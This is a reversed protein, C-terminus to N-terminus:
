NSRARVKQNGEARWKLYEEVAYRTIFGPESLMKQIMETQPAAEAELHIDYYGGAKIFVSRQSGEKRPPSLFSVRAKEGTRPMALYRGDELLLLDRVDRGLADQAELPAVENVILPQDESYDVALWNIMWYTAAPTLKVRLTDGPVDSVDFSYLRDESILPGGGQILGRSAWGRPTEVRIHLQYLEERVDMLMTKMLSPGQSNVDRYWEQVTNGYLDLLKKIMHSGWLTTCGNFILRATKAGEPKPFEFVLEEKTPSTTDRSMEATRTLWFKWDNTGVAPLLDRGNRDFARRPSLPNSVTHMKGLADSVVRAEPAHDVVVLKLEDTYQTEDVENTILINYRGDAEKIEELACWETRKLGECIAGGFPEADFVYREGNFSYIFPCSEKLAAIIVVIAGLTVGIGGLTALFTLGPDIKKVWVLEVDKLPVSVEVFDLTIVIEEKDEKVIKPYTYTKGDKTEIALIRGDSTKNIKQIQARPIAIEGEGATRGLIRDGYVRGPFKKPFEIYEGSTKMLGMIEVQKGYVAEPPLKKTSRIVCSCSFVLFAFLTVLATLKKTM